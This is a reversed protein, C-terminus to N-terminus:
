SPDLPAETLGLRVLAARRDPPWPARVELAPERDQLVLARAHLLPVGTEIGAARDRVADGYRADGVLPLGIAAVHARIQHTRGTLLEAELLSHSGTRALTRLRTRAPRGGQHDVVVRPEHAAAGSRRRLPLDIEREDFSARGHVVLQYCKRVSGSELAQRFRECAAATLAVALVGSTGRDLRHAPVPRARGSAIAEAFRERLWRDIAAPDRGDDSCAAGAPKAVFVLDEGQHLIEIPPGQYPRDRDHSAVRTPITGQEPRHHVVVEDGVRLRDEARARRGNIRVRRQRLLRRVLSFPAGGLAPQLWRDLRRDADAETIRFHLAM